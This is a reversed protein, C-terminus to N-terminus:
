TKGLIADVVWCGRTHPKGNRCHENILQHDCGADMLADGLIPMATFDRADYIHAAMDRVTSTFWEPKWALPLFPNGLAERYWDPQAPDRPTFQSVCQLAAACWHNQWDINDLAGLLQNYISERGQESLAGDAFAEGAAVAEHLLQNGDADFETRCVWCSGLRIKRDPIQIGLLTLVRQMEGPAACADWEVAGFGNDPDIYYPKRCEPCRASPDLRADDWRCLHFWARKCKCRVALFEIPEM